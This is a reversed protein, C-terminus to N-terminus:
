IVPSGSLTAPGGPSDDPEVGDSRTLPQCVTEIASVFQPAQGSHASLALTFVRAADALIREAKVALGHQRLQRHIALLPATDPNDWDLNLREPLENRPPKFGALEAMLKAEDMHYDPRIFGRGAERYALAWVDDARLAWPTLPKFVLGFQDFDSVLNQVGPGPVPQSATQKNLLWQIGALVQEPTILRRCHYDRCEPKNELCPSCKLDVQM